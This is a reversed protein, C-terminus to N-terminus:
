LSPSAQQYHGSFRNSCGSSSSEGMSAITGGSGAGISCQETLAQSLESGGTGSLPDQFDQQQQFQQPKKRASGGSRRVAAASFGGRAPAPNFTM